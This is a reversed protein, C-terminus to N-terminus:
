CSDKLYCYANHFVSSCMGDKKWFGFCWHLFKWLQPSRSLSSIQERIESGDIPAKAWLRRTSQNLNSWMQFINKLIKQKPKTVIEKNYKDIIKKISHTHAHTHAHAHCIYLYIHPSPPLSLSRSLSLSYSAKSHSSGTCHKNRSELNKRRKRM